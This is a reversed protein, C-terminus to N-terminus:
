DKEKDLDSKIAECNRCLGEDTFVRQDDSESGCSKCKKIIFYRNNM